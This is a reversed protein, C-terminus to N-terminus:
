WNMDLFTCNHAFFANLYCITNPKSNAKLGKELISEINCQYRIHYVYKIVDVPTIYNENKM